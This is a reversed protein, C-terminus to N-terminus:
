TKTPVGGPTDENPVLYTAVRQALLTIVAGTLADNWEGVSVWTVALGAIGLVTAAWWKRTPMASPAATVARAEM